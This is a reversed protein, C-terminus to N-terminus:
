ENKDDGNNKRDWIIDTYYEVMDANKYGRHVVKEIDDQNFLLIQDAGVYGFPYVVACYDYRKEDAKINIGIIMFDVKKVKVDKKLNVLSGLPLMKNIEM